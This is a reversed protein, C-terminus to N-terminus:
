LWAANHIVARYHCVTGSIQRILILFQAQASCRVHLLAKLGHFIRAIGQITNLLLGSIHPPPQIKHSRLM